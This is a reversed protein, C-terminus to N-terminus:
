PAVALGALVEDAIRALDPLSLPGCRELRQDLDEGELLEMVLFPAGSPLQDWDLVAVINPHRLGAVIEAERRFRALVEPEGALAPSLLKLAFRRSLSRHRLVYVSCMGGTALRREVIYRGAVVEGILPDRDHRSPVGRQVGVGEASATGDGCRM